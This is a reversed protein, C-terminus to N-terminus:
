ARARKPPPGIVLIRRGHDGTVEGHQVGAKALRALLARRSQAYRGGYQKAKGCLTSGSLNEMGDLLGQQYSGKALACAKAYDKRSTVIAWSM